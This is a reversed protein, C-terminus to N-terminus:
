RPLPATEIKKILKLADYYAKSVASPSVGWDKAVDEFVTTPGTTKAAATTVVDFFINHNRILNAAGQFANGKAGALGLASAAAEIEKGGEKTKPPRDIFGSIKGAVEDFYKHVFDLAGPSHRVLLRCGWAHWCFLPNKTEEYRLRDLLVLQLAAQPRGWPSNGPWGRAKLAAAAEAEVQRLDAETFKDRKPGPKTTM